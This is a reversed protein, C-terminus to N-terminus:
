NIKKMGNILIDTVLNMESELEKNNEDDLTQEKLFRVFRLKLGQIAHLFVKVLEEPLEYRFEGTKKGEDIIKKLLILEQCEFDEYLKRFVSKVDLISHLSLTGLNALKHSYAIRQEVYEKLKWAASTSKQLLLEVNNLFETQEQYIVAKFLEEKTPFYYYLSAKGLEVDGAIEDMTVKSFGYHAFRKRAAQMIIRVKENSVIEAM